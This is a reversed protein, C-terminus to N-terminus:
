AEAPLRFNSATLTSELKGMAALLTFQDMLVQYQGTLYDSQANYAENEVDLVNLPTRGFAKTRLDSEYGKAVAIALDAHSKLEALRDTSIQYNTWAQKVAKDVDLKTALKNQEAVKQNFEAQEEAHMDAGGNFLNYNLMLMAQLNNSRGQIGNLNNNSTYAGQATITPWFASEAVKVASQTSQETEIDAKYAPNNVDLAKAADLQYMKNTTRLLGNIKGAMMDISQDLNIKALDKPAYGTLSEYTSGANTLEGDISLKAAQAQDLRGEALKQDTKSESSSLMKIVSKHQQINKSALAKLGEFRLVNLYAEDTAKAINEIKEKNKFDAAAAKHENFHVRSPTGWGDYILQTLTAGQTDAPGSITTAGQGSKGRAWGKGANVNLSPFYGGRAVGVGEHDASAQNKTALIQPNNNLVDNFISQLTQPVAAFASSSLAVCGFLAAATASLMLKKSNRKSM